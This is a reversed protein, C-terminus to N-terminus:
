DRVTLMLTKLLKMRATAATARTTAASVPDGPQSFSPSPSAFLAIALLAVALPRRRTMPNELGGAPFRLRTRICLRFVGVFGTLYQSAPYPEPPSGLSKHLSLFTMM